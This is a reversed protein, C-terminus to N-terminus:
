WAAFEHYKEPTDVVLYIVRVEDPNILVAKNGFRIKAQDLREKALKMINQKNGFNLAGTPCVKSCIPEIGECIRTTCMHCKTLMGTKTNLRPINFPCADIVNQANDKLEKIKDTFLVAGTKDIFIAGSVYSDAEAKCSPELCHRCADTFFYRVITEGQQYEQFRVLRYTDANLDPPNQPSGWQHTKVAPLKNWEKCAVQCGRCALCRTTDVFFYKGSM